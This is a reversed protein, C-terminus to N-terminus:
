AEENKRPPHNAMDATVALFEDIEDKSNCHLPSVRICGEIGLSKLMRVSYISSCVREYVIIGRREYERVAEEYDWGDLAMGIILDREVTDGTDFFITVGPLHRLGNHAPGELMYEMLACEQARLRRIGALYRTRRDDSDCDADGLECVYDVIATIVAFHAPAPSGLKWTLNSVDTLGRLHKHPLHCLRDSAYGIGSGRVGFFKYPAFAVGDLNLGDVDIVGHPAHQVADVLIYLDPKIKRAETVIATIDQVAGSINSAMIVSLLCTNEDILKTIAEVDVGGTLPNTDAARLEKGTKEAFFRAADFACPHELKTTVINTGPVNEAVVGTMEWIVQSASLRPIIRGGKEAHFIIRIDREAKDMIDNMYNAAEHIRESCDPLADLAEFAKSASKLRFAGGANDFYIRKRQTVPDFDIAQFQERIRSLENDSFFQGRMENMSNM